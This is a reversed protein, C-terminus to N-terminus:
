NDKQPLVRLLNGYIRVRKKSVHLKAALEELDDDKAKMGRPFSYKVFGANAKKKSLAVGFVALASHYKQLSWSQRKIIRAYFIDAKSLWDYAQAIEEAGQYESAINEELWSFINEPQESNAVAMAANEISTTKFILRLTEFINEEHRRHGLNNVAEMTIQPLMEMDMLAARLDGNCVKALQSLAKEDYKIKEADCIKKLFRETEGYRLKQFKVLKCYSRLSALKREYPNAAILIVPFSSAKILEIVHRVADAQELDDILFLKGKAFISRQRSAKMLSEKIVEAPDSAHREVLECGLEKAILKVALSKGTGTAGHLLLAGSKWNKVWQTIEQMQLRNGIFERLARPEYKQLLM